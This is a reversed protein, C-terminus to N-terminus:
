GGRLGGDGNGPNFGEAVAAITWERQRFWGVYHFTISLGEAPDLSRTRATVSLVSSRSWGMMGDNECGEIIATFGDAKTTQCSFGLIELGISSVWVKVM